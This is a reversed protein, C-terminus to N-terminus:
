RFFCWRIGQKNTFYTFVFPFTSSSPCKVHESVVCAPALPIFTLDKQRDDTQENLIQASIKKLLVPILLLMLISVNWSRPLHVLLIVFNQYACCLLILFIISHRIVLFFISFVIIWQMCNWNNILIHYLQFKRFLEAPSLCDYMGHFWRCFIVFVIFCCKLVVVTM